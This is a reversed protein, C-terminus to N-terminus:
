LGYARLTPFSCITGTKPVRTCDCISQFIGGGSTCLGKTSNYLLVINLKRLKQESTRKYSTVHAPTAYNTYRSAVPQVTRPDSGSFPALNEANMWLDWVSEQLILVPPLPAPVHSQGDVCM